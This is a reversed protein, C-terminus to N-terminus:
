QMDMPAAGGDEQAGTAASAGGMSAPPLSSPHPPSPGTVNAPPPSLSSPHLPQPLPASSCDSALQPPPALCSLPHTGAAAAPSSCAGSIASHPRKNSSCPPTKTVEAWLMEAMRNSTHAILDFKHIETWMNSDPPIAFESVFAQGTSQNFGCDIRVAPVGLRLLRQFYDLHSGSSESLLQQVLDLCKIAPEYIPAHLEATTEKKGPPKSTKVMFSYRFRSPQGHEHPPAVCWARYENTEFGEVARQIGIHPQNWRLIFLMVAVELEESDGNKITV